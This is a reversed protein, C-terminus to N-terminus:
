GYALKLEAYFVRNPNTPDLPDVCEALQNWPDIFGSWVFQQGQIRVSRCAEYPTREIVGSTGLKQMGALDGTVSTQTFLLVLGAIAIVAVFGLSVLKLGTADNNEDEM